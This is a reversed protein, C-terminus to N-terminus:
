SSWVLFFLSNFPSRDYFRTCFSYTTYTAACIQIATNSKDLFAELNIIDEMGNFSFFPFSILSFFNEVPQSSPIFSFLHTLNHYTLYKHFTITHTQQVKTSNTVCLRLDDLGRSSKSLSSFNNTMLLGKWASSWFIPPSHASTTIKLIVLLCRSFLTSFIPKQPRLHMQASCLLQHAHWSWIESSLFLTNRPKSSFTLQETLAECNIFSNTLQLTKPGWISKFQIRFNDLVIIGIEINSYFNIM